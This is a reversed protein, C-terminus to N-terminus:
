RDPWDAWPLAPYSGDLSAFFAVLAALDDDCLSQPQLMADVEGIVNGMPEETNGGGKLHFAVVEGLTAFIGNHGYPAAHQINRLSPTRLAGLIPEVDFTPPQGTGGDYFKGAANFVNEQWIMVGDARGRDPPDGPLAPVGLNHFAGDSLLFGAHCSTCGARMLVKLGHAERDDLAQSDGLLYLDFRSRGAALRREYAAIAKGVNAVVANIADQDTQNMEEWADHGPAGRSPFRRRDELDPLPDFITEYDRAYSAAIRHAIELRTFDMELTGEFAFLPQSWLSDARGDWFIWRQWAANLLTPSNRSVNGIGLSVARGDDFEREPLHCTACRVESNQSFRADFFIAQGLLAAAESQAVRNGRAPPLTEPLLM